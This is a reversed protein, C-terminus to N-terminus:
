DLMQTLRIETSAGEVFDWPGALSTKTSGVVDATSEPGQSRVLGAQLCHYSESPGIEVVDVSSLKGAGCAVRETSCETTWGQSHSNFWSCKWGGTIM